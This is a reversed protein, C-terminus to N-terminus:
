LSWPSQGVLHLLSQHQAAVRMPDAAAALPDVSKRCPAVMLGVGCDKQPGEREKHGLGKGLRLAYGRFRAECGKIDNIDQTKMEAVRTRRWVM